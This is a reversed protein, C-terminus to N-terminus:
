PATNVYVGWGNNELVTKATLGSEGPIAMSEGELYVNGGTVGNESLTVLVNNVATENLSCDSGLFNGIPQTNVIVIETVNPNDGVNVTILSPLGSIDLSGSLECDDINLVELATLQSLGVISALGNESFNNDNLRLELISTSNTLNVSSLGTFVINNDSVDVYQLNPLESLDVTTLGNYDASFSDLNIFDQLGTVSTIIAPM